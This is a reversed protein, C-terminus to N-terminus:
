PLQCGLRPCKYKGEDKECIACLKPEPKAPAAEEEVTTVEGGETEPNTTPLAAASIVEPTVTRSSM